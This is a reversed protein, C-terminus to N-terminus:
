QSEPALVSGESRPAVRSFASLPTPPVVPLPRPLLPRGGPRCAAGGPLRGLFSEAATGATGVSLLCRPGCSGAPVRGPCRAVLSGALSCCSVGSVLGSALESFCESLTDPSVCRGDSSRRSEGPSPLACLPSLARGTCTDGCLPRQAPEAQPGREGSRGPRSGGGLGPMQVGGRGPELAPPGRSFASRRCVRGSARDSSPGLHGAVRGWRQALDREFPRLSFPSFPVREFPRRGEGVLPRGSVWMSPCVSLRVSPLSTPPRGASRAACVAGGVARAASSEPGGLGPSRPGFSAPGARHRHRHPHRAVSKSIVNELPDPARSGLPDEMKAVIANQRDSNLIVTTQPVVSPVLIM